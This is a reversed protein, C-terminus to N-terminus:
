WRSTSRHLHKYSIINSTIDCHDWKRKVLVVQGVRDAPFCPCGNLDGLRGQEAEGELATKLFYRAENADTKELIQKESILKELATIITEVDTDLNASLEDIVLGKSSAESLANLIRDAIDKM